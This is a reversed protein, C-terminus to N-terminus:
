RLLNAVSPDIGGPAASHPNAMSSTATANSTLALSENPKVRIVKPGAAINGKDTKLPEFVGQNIFRSIAYFKKDRKPDKDYNPLMKIWMPLPKGEATVIQSKIDKGDGVVFAAIYAFFKEYKAIREAPAGIGPLDLYEIVDTKPINVINRYNPSHTLNELFHKIGKWLDQTSAEIDEPKRNEYQDETGNVLQKTGVIKFSHTYFRDPDNANLKFNEFEVQLVPPELDKFEGKEHKKQHTVHFDTVVTPVCGEWLYGAGAPNKIPELGLRTTTSVNLDLLGM